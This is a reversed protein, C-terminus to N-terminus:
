EEGAEEDAEPIATYHITVVKWEGDTKRWVDTEFSKATTTNGEPDRTRSDVFYTAVAIEGDAFMQVKLDSMEILEVGGGAEIMGSWSENYAALDVRGDGFYAVADDAYYAFYTEVENAEYADNFGNIAALLSADKTAPKEAMAALPTFLIAICLFIRNM